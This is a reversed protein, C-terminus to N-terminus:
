WVNLKTREETVKDKKDKMSVTIEKSNCATSQQLLSPHVM